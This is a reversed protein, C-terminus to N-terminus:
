RNVEGNRVIEDEFVKLLKMIITLMIKNLIKM